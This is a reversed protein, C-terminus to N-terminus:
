GLSSTDPASTPPPSKSSTRAAGSPIPSAAPASVNVTQSWTHSYEGFVALPHGLFHWNTPQYEAGLGLSFGPVTKNQSTQPGGLMIKVDENILSLGTLGYVFWDPTVMAGAKMGLTAMWNTTTGLFSGSPFTQYVPLHLLAFSAYPGLRIANDWPSFYIGGDIGFGLPDKVLDFQNTLHDSRYASISALRISSLERDIRLSVGDAVFRNGNNIHSDNDWPNNTATYGPLLDTAYISPSQVLNPGLNDTKESWDGVLHITTEDDPTFKLKAHFDKDGFLKHNEEGTAINRGWGEGAASYRATLSAALDPTIGGAVYGDATVTQYNEYSLRFTGTAEQSPDRTTIQVVGGTANRGFLTGQPGKLVAVQDVDILSFATAVQSGYYVGDVYLAVPNEIGPGAAATGVGRVYPELQNDTVRTSVGPFAQALQTTSDIGAVELSQATVVSVSIPVRQLNEARRQATVVVEALTTDSSEPAVGTSEVGSAAEATRSEALVVIPIHMAAAVLFVLRLRFFALKM